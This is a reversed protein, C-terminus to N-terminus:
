YRPQGWQADYGYSPDQHQQGYGGPTIPQQPPYHQHVYPQLAGYPEQSYHYGQQDQLAQPQPQQQYQGAYPGPKNSHPAHQETYITQYNIQGMTDPALSGYEFDDGPMERSGGTLFSFPGNNVNGHSGSGIISGIGLATPSGHVHPDGQHNKGQKISESSLRQNLSAGPDPLSNVWEKVKRFMTQHIECEPQRLAPHHFARVVDDLVQEVRVEPHEWAYVVRPAVYQLIASAVQGAPCNLVNSFHDESLLSHTPATCVPDEWPGYQHQGSSQVVASSGVKLEQSALNIVPIIYPALLSMVFITIKESITNILKELGPIKSIFANIARMVNDRFALIPYIKAIKTQLDIKPPAAYGGGAAADQAEQANQSAQADSDRQLDVAERCFNSTGPVQFLLNNLGM